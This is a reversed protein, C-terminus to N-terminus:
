KVIGDALYQEIAAVSEGEAELIQRSESGLPALNASPKIALSKFRYALGTGYVNGLEPRSNKYLVGNEVLEQEAFIRAYGDKRCACAPIGAESLLALASTLDHGAFFEAMISYEAEGWSETPSTTWEPSGVLGALIEIESSTRAAIAIWGDGVGVEYIAENAGYGKRSELLLKPGLFSGDPNQAIDSLLFVAASLLPVEIAVGMGTRRKHFLSLLVAIQGLQAGAFDSAMTRNLLPEGGAGGARMELGCFAQMVPDFAADGSRPGTLGYGSNLLVIKAPDNAHLSAADIGLREAVGTKFNSCVVDASNALSQALALGTNNKLDIAISSKGRNAASYFSYASRMPDGTLPEVKIVQAGLDALGVSSAPGAVFAGFDIVKIGELPLGVNAVSGSEAQGAASSTLKLPQGVFRSGDQNQRIIGMHEVQPDDWCKGPPNVLGAVVGAKSLAKVLDHSMWHKASPGLLELDGFFREPSEKPNPLGSATPEISPDDIGLVKYLQYKAGVSGLVAHVYLGDACKLLIPRAGRPVKFSFWFPENDARSWLPAMMTVASDMLGVSITEGMGRTERVYLAASIAVLSQFFAGYASVPFAMVAPADALTEFVIGSHAQILLDSSQGFERFCESITPMINLLILRDHAVLDDAMVPNCLGALCEGGVICIDADALATEFAEETYSSVSGLAQRWTRYAPYIEYFPDGGVPEFRAVNAGLDALFKAVLAAAFGVGADVVTIGELPLVETKSNDHM